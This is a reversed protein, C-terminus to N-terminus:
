RFDILLMGSDDDTPPAVLGSSGLSGIPVTPELLPDRADHTERSGEPPVEVPPLAVVQSRLCHTVYPLQMGDRGRGYDAYLAQVAALLITREEEALGIVSSRSRALDLITHQDVSQWCAFAETEPAAFRVSSALSATAERERPPTDLIRGLKKVWPIREDRANWLVALHGSPKLVRAAEPLAREHDFWHFAQAAVVVDYSADPAPVDEAASLSTRVAPLRARLVELMAPDPDTAHVDHGLAVLQETLKGTGAGLELVTLPEPGTAWVVADVPYSPRGRDYADAVAGFSHAPLRDTM